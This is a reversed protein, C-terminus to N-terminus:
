TGLTSEMLKSTLFNITIACSEQIKQTKVNYIGSWPLRRALRDTKPSPEGLPLNKRDNKTITSTLTLISNLENPKAEYINKKGTVSNLSQYGYNDFYFILM